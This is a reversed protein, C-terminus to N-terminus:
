EPPQLRILRSGDALAYLLGDPGFKVDRIRMKLDGLLRTEKGLGDGDLELRNIRTMKMGAVLLSDAWQPYQSGTYFALGAIGISPTYYILPQKMGERHTGEGIPDGSYEKGYTIVPWGYNAGAQLVNIEDGGMPGHESVWIQGNHPHLAIGQPNRHGYSYIEPRADPSTVFPNDAPLQGDEALRIVKGNHTGLDQATDRNGRDGVTIFLMGQHLLLRSGFHRRANYAPLATFLEQVETLADGQLRGRSVRTTYGGDLEVAYSLYVWGNDEFQPHILVDMMGGQGADASKPVGTVERTEWSTPDILLLKGVKETLLIQGDPLFDLGWPEKLWQVLTRVRISTPAGPGSQSAEGELLPEIEAPGTEPVACAVVAFLAIGTFFRLTRFLFTM